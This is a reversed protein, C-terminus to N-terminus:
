DFDHGNQPVSSCHPSKQSVDGIVFFLRPVLLNEIGNKPDGFGHHENKANPNQKAHVLRLPNRKEDDFVAPRHIVQPM